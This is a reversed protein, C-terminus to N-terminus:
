REEESDSEESGSEVLEEPSVELERKEVDFGLERMGDATSEVKSPAAVIVAVSKAPDFLPLCYKKLAVLIQEKTVAQYKELMERNHNQNVHKLAQNVFSTIAASGPTSVARAINYVITSKAADVTTNELAITGDVLGEVVKSGERFAQLVNSSRYLSFSLLGAEMDPSISAGYALGSGRIYRWLYSESANLVELALRLAPYEPHEFGKITKTTHTSFGHVPCLVIMSAKTRPNRGIESLTEDTFKIPQLPTEPIMKGFYKNWVSRPKPLDLINGTVSFRMGSPNTLYKRIEEFEKRVDEPSERLKNIVDPIAKMQALIANSRQTSSEDYLLESSYGSLITNGDRKLEPLSQLIKACTVQLRSLDFEAGYILDKMWRVAAEYKEGEVKISVRFNESFYGLMGLESEYSVTEDDLKIVVKEHSLQEGTSTTIPLSFFASLYATIVPRLRNPLKALSLLAHVEVFDSQVHDFQVFFPLKFGDANLHDVLKSSNTKDGPPPKIKNGEQASQVTIWSISKVDPVPFNELIERPISADNEKKAEDLEEKAKVLGVAGLAKVQADIRMKEDKELKDALESSPKGRLVVSPSDIYYLATWQDSTWGLLEAYLKMEDMAPLLESGDEPGLVSDTIVISSFTDGKSSELKSRLQRQDRNIVMAMRTMDFGDKVIKGLSIKLKSDFTDLQETPVSGIYIPLDVFDPRVDEDFYIYTCLPNDIEIFEKNLYDKTPPGMFTMLLDGVSEDKEPFEVTDIQDKFPVRSASPTEVFPRVWGPPRSGQNYGSAILTPEVEKQVVSLLSETGDIFKGAVILSLNHPVYYKAHYDRIQQVDLSRLASMLGGVESRYGSGEPYLLRQMRLAMLDAPTNERGQMESYVVGSNSGSPDIHHVETVFASQTLTPYLIHDVYIPLIQLFGQSGATEVTYCTHDDATWANTGSSFGRNALHDIIGKYPYKKSGMFVLHELTHPCGSDNFIETGVAFYGKVIPAEYDLHVITLGTVRSRWKTVVVDTFDLEVRKVLDFNGSSQTM